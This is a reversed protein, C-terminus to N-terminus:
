DCQISQALRVLLGAVMWPWDVDQETSLDRTLVNRVTDAPVDAALIDRILAIVADMSEREDCEM